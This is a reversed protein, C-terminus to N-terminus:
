SLGPLFSIFIPTSSDLPVGEVCRADAVIFLTAKSRSRIADTALASIGAISHVAHEQDAECAIHSQGQVHDFEKVTAQPVVGWNARRPLFHSMSFDFLDLLGDPARAPQPRQEFVQQLAM